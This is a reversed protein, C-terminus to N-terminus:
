LGACPNCVAPAVAVPAPAVALVPAPPPPPAYTVVPAPAYTVTPAAIVVPAPEAVVVPAPAVVAAAACPSCDNAPAACDGTACNCGAAVLLSAAFAMALLIRM